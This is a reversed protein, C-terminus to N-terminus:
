NLRVKVTEEYNPPLESDSMIIIADDIIENYAPLKETSGYADKTMIATIDGSSRNTATRQSRSTIISNTNSRNNVMRRKVFVMILSVCLLFAAFALTFNYIQFAMQEKELQNQEQEMQRQLYSGGPQADVGTPLGDGLDLALVPINRMMNPGQELAQDADDTSWAYSKSQMPEDGSKESSSYRHQMKGDPGRFSSYSRSSVYSSSFLPNRDEINDESNSDDAILPQLVSDTGFTPGNFNNNFFPDNNFISMAANFMQSPNIVMQQQDADRGVTGSGLSYYFKPQQDNNSSDM